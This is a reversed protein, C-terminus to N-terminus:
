SIVCISNTSKPSSSLEEKPTQTKQIEQYRKASSQPQEKDNIAQKRQEELFKKNEKEWEHLKALEPTNASPTIYESPPPSHGVEKAVLLGNALAIKSASRDLGNLRLPLPKNTDIPKNERPSNCIHCTSNSEQNIISCQSCTWDGGVLGAGGNFSEINRALINKLELYKNKYKLYKNEFSM